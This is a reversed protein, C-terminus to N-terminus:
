QLQSITQVEIKTTQSNKMVKSQVKATASQAEVIQTHLEKHVKDLFLTDAKVKTLDELSASASDLLIQHDGTVRELREIV